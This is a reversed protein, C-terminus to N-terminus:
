SPRLAKAFGVLLLARDRLPRPGPIEWLKAAADRLVDVEAAAKKTVATGKTRRIGTMVERIAPSQTDLTFGALRHAQRISVLRMNLSAAKHSDARVSLFDGVTESAAPLLSRGAAECWDRFDAWAVSYARRTNAASFEMAYACAADSLSAAPLALPQAVVAENVVATVVTAVVAM